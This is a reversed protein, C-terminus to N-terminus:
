LMLQEGGLGGQAAANADFMLLTFWYPAMEPPLCATRAEATTSM